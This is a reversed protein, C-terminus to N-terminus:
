IIFKEVIKKIVGRSEVPNLHDYFSSVFKSTRHKASLLIHSVFTRLVHGYSGLPLIASFFFSQFTCDFM